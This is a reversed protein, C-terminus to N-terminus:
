LGCSSDQPSFRHALAIRKLQLKTNNFSLQDWYPCKTDYEVMSKELNCIVLDAMLGLWLYIPCDAQHNCIVVEIKRPYKHM